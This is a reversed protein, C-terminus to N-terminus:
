QAGGNPANRMGESKAGGGEGRENENSRVKPSGPEQDPGAAGAIPSEGGGGGPGNMLGMQAGVQAFQQLMDEQFMQKQELKAMHEMTHAKARAATGPSRKELEKFRTSSMEELHGLIHRMDNDDPKRPPVNGHYWLEHEQSPTLLNLENPVKVIEDVNRIDFGHELIMALLKPGNIAQPGYTQILIPVRDLINVLQQTNAMKTTLKHSALPIALFRGIIDQPRINYRDQYRLGMPGLDRVVREYSMFQQNNWSMQVLMPVGVEEEWAEIMPVLRLNAEDIESMHQTATKGESFPDKGGMSPSTAGTTERIDVTLVNEAKLAADSVQPVHLPAISKEIDPVRIAHGPEIIIQGAPVNADDAILWMPNGELQTSAMLLNRKMDKEMSLRAIMELVGIGYFEDELSIPRWAQYPKQQHWFPCETVRVVLQLGKPEVMVVNCLKTQYNGRDNKIVLPGWWDIVEYHPIHPAWSAQRPDFVGYAYSKREKFEDGFSTDSSGPHEKLAELNFWHGLEGMAKVKYDPWGSRDAAWEAEDVSSANPSTLFDFISVNQVENGDFVLEQRTLKDLELTSAGPFNPDPVRKATRYTMERIEQRWYTKQIATGYILGDRLFRSAKPRYRTKTLHDRCLMEQMEAAADHETHEGYMKFWRPTAFLTRLIKPHLTEVAKFPEPSHLRQRGYTFTDLSEGRYLRYLILWKNRLFEMVNFVDKLGSQVASKAQEVVFDDHALNKFGVSEEYLRASAEPQTGEEFADETLKYPGSIPETDKRRSFTGMGRQPQTMVGTRPNPPSAPALTNGLETRDGV